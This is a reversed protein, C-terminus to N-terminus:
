EETVFKSNQNVFDKPDELTNNQNVDGGKKNEDRYKWYFFSM